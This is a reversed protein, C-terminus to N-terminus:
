SAAEQYPPGFRNDQADSPRVLWYFQLLVGAVIIAGVVIGTAAGLLSGMLAGVAIGVAAFAIPALIFYGALDIDHMRRILVTFSPIWVLVGAVTSIPGGTESSFTQPGFVFFDVVSTGILLLVYFLAFWWYEARSARGSMRFYKRFCTAVATRFSIM